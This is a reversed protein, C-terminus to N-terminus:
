FMEGFEKYTPLHELIEFDLSLLTIQFLYTLQLEVFPRDAISSVGVEMVM